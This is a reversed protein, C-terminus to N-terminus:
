SPNRPLTAGSRISQIRSPSFDVAGDSSVSFTGLIPDGHPAYLAVTRVQYSGESLRISEVHQSDIRRLLTGTATYIDLSQPWLGLANFRTGKVQEWIAGLSVHLEIIGYNVSIDDSQNHIGVVKLSSVEIM